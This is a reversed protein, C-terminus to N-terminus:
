GTPLSGGNADVHFPDNMLVRNWHYFWRLDVGGGRNDNRNIFCISYGPGTGGQAVAPLQCGPFTREVGGAAAGELSSAFPYEDCDTNTPVPSPVRPNKRCANDRNETEYERTGKHLTTGWLTTYGPSWCCLRCRTAAPRSVTM